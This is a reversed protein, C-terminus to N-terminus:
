VSKAAAGEPYDSFMAGIIKRLEPVVHRGIADRQRRLQAIEAAASTLTRAQDVPATSALRHLSAVLDHTEGL